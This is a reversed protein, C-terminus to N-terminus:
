LEINVGVSYDIAVKKGSIDKITRPEIIIGNIALGTQTNFSEIRKILDAKLVIVEDPLNQTDM